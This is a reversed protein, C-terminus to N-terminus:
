GNVALTAEGGETWAYVPTAAAITGDAYEGFRIALGDRSRDAPAAALEAIRVIVAGETAHQAQWDDGDALALEAGLDLPAPGVQLFQTAM